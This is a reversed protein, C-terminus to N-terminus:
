GSKGRYKTRGEGDKYAVGRDGKASGGDGCGVTGFTQGFRSNPISRPIGRDLPAGRKSTEVGPAASRGARFGAYNSGSDSYDPKTRDDYVSTSQGLSKPLKRTVRDSPFKDTMPAEPYGNDVGYQYIPSSCTISAGGGTSKYRPM